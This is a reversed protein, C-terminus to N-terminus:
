VPPLDPASQATYLATYLVKLRPAGHLASHLATYLVKLRPVRHLGLHGCGPQPASLSLSPPHLLLSESRDACLFRPAMGALPAQLPPAAGEAGHGRLRRCARKSIIAHLKGKVTWIPKPCLNELTLQTYSRCGRCGVCIGWRLETPGEQYPAQETLLDRQALASHADSWNHATIHITRLNYIFDYLGDPLASWYQTVM